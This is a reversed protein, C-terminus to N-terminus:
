GSVLEQFFKKLIKRYIGFCSSFLILMLGMEFGRWTLMSWADMESWRMFLTDPSLVLAGITAIGIGKFLNGSLSFNL